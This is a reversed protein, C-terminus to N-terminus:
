VAETEARNRDTSPLRRPSLRTWVSEFFSSVLYAQTRTCGLDEPKTVKAKIRVPLYHRRPKSLLVHVIAREVRKSAAVFPPGSEISLGSAVHALEAKSRQEKRKM